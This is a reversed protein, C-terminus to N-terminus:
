LYRRVRRCYDAYESDFAQRLHAEEALAIKHHVAVVFLSVLLVIPNLTYLTSGLLTCYVGIYMPNRSLSFLGGTKLATSENPSGIRFSNGLGFRGTFLLLFGLTWLCLSVPILLRPQRIISLNMGWARAIAAGWL